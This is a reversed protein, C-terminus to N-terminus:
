FVVGSFLRGAFGKIAREIARQGDAGFQNGELRVSIASKGKCHKAAYGLASAVQRAEREGWEMAAYAAFFGDADFDRYQEFVSVFGRHYMELVLDLDSENSFAIAGDAVRQRLSKAFAPPTLPPERGTKLMTRLADYLHMGDLGALADPQYGAMDWMCHVCKSVFCTRREVECWGRACYPRSNTYSAGSPLPTTLLLVHTYPHAYWAMLSALGSRFRAAEAPSRAPQPLCCYDWLVGVTFADGGCFLLMHRLIPAILALQEGHADPHDLDLWPYSLVLIGLSFMRQWSYLRWVSSKDIRASAPVDQWRPVVGGRAHLALLYRADILTVHELMTAEIMDGGFSSWVRGEPQRLRQSEMAAVHISHERAAETAAIRQEPTPRWAAQAADLSSMEDAQPLAFALTEQEAQRVLRVIQAMQRQKDMTPNERVAIIQAALQPHRQVAQALEDAGLAGSSSSASAASSPRLTCRPPM